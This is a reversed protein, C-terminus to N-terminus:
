VNSNFVGSDMPLCIITMGKAGGLINGPSHNGHCPWVVIIGVLLPRIPPSPLHSRLMLAIVLRQSRPSLM